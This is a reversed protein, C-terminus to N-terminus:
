ANVSIPLLIAMSTYENQIRTYNFNNDIRETIVSFTKVSIHVVRPANMYKLTVPIQMMSSTVVDGYIM